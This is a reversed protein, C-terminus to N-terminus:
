WPAYSTYSGFELQRDATFKAVIDAQGIIQPHWDTSGRPQWSVEQFPNFVGSPLPVDPRYHHLVVCHLRKGPSSRNLTDFWDCVVVASLNANRPPGGDDANSLFVGGFKRAAVTDQFREGPTIEGITLGFLATQIDNASLIDRDGLHVFLMLPLSTRAYKTAKGNITDGIKRAREGKDCASGTGDGHSTVTGRPSHTVFVDVIFKHNAIEVAIDPTLGNVTPCFDPTLNFRHLIENTVIEHIVADINATDNERRIRKLVQSQKSAQLGQFCTNLFERTEKAARGEDSAV